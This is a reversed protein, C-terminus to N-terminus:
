FEGQFVQILMLFPDPTEAAPAQAPVPVFVRVLHSSESFPSSFPPISPYPLSPEMSASSGRGPVMFDSHPAQPALTLPIKRQTGCGPGASPIIDRWCVGQQQQQQTAETMDLETHGWLRCGVLSGWGQSEGPLFVPTPQWKRRRVSERPRGLQVLYSPFVISVWPM